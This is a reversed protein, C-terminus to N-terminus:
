EVSTVPKLLENLEKNSLRASNIGMRKFDEYGPDFIILRFYEMIEEEMMQQMKDIISNEPEELVYYRAGRIPMMSRFEESQWFEHSLYAIMKHATNDKKFLRSFISPNSTDLIKHYRYEINHDRFSQMLQKFHEERKEPLLAFRSSNIEILVDHSDILASLIQYNANEQNAPYTLTYQASELNLQDSIKKLQIKM